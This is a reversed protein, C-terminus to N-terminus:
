CCAHCGHFRGRDTLVVMYAITVTVDNRSRKGPRCITEASLTLVETALGRVPLAAKDDMTSVLDSLLEALVIVNCRKASGPSEAGDGFLAPATVELSKSYLARPPNLSTLTDSHTAILRQKVHHSSRANLPLYPFPKSGNLEPTPKM